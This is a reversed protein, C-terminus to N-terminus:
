GGAPEGHVSGLTASVGGPVRLNLRRYRLKREEQGRPSQCSCCGWGWGRRSGSTGEKIKSHLLGEWAAQTLGLLLDNWGPAKWPRWLGSISEMRGGVGWRFQGLITSELDGELNNEGPLCRKGM